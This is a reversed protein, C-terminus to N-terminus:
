RTAHARAHIWGDVTAGPGPRLDEVVGYAGITVGRPTSAAQVARRDAVVATAWADLRHSSCDLAEAVALARAVVDTNVLDQMAARVEGRYGMALFWGALAAAGVGRAEATPPSSLAIEALSTQIQEIPQFDYLASTGAASIGERELDSVLALIEDPAATDARGVIANARVKLHPDLEVFEVLAPLVTAPAAKAVDSETSQWGLALLAQLVSDIDLVRSPTGLLAQIFEGDRPSALPLPLPRTDRHLSGIVIKPADVGLLDAVIAAMSMKEAEYERYNLGLAAIVAGSVDDSLLPRVRLGQMVPSSGLVDLMTDDIGPQGPRIRPVNRNSAALWRGTLSRVLSAIGATTEGARGQWTRLDSVPLVGYPQAGVRIAPANGRGRVHDRFLRRASERQADLVGPVGQKHLRSLYEGWGPAWLATNVLRGIRQEGTGPGVLGTLVTADVGLMTAASAADSAPDVQPLILAPPVPDPRRRYPSREAEANNTPVGQPLLGFGAGFRHGTLLDELEDAGAAPSLSARTGVAIVREIPGAGGALDVTVAMGKELAADYDVLWESGPPIALANAIRAPEDGALPIPSLGLDPPIPRGVARSVQGGQVVLVVFRDPLSRAVVNRPGREAPTPFTPTPATGREALNTPTLVHAVWEAAIRGSRRSM